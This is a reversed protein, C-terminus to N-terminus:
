LIWWLVSLVIALIPFVAYWIGRPKPVKVNLIFLTGAVFLTLVNAIAFDLIMGIPLILAIYTVPLGQYHQIPIRIDTSSNFYALRTVACMVYFACVVLAYWSAGVASFVIIAPTVGFSVVDVVTDLQIGFKEEEDTRKIKRAVVGDFLDCIGAAVFLTISLKLNGGLAFFASSLSLLLGFITICNAINIYGLFYKKKRRM